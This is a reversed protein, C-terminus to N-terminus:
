PFEGGLRLIVDELAAGRVEMRRVAMGHAALIKLLADRAAPVDDAEVRVVPGEGHLTWARSAAHARLRRAEEASEMELELVPPAYLRRLEPTAESALLSGRHVVAVTDCIREVDSLVPTTLIVTAEERLGAILDLVGRRGAPDLAACPEDLFVVGPRGMLAQAIGLRQVMDASYGGIRRGAAEGLGSAALLRDARRGAEIRSQGFLGGVLVLLERGSMWGYFRPDEDLWGIRRRLTPSRVSVEGGAVRATGSTSGVLGTLIRLVTTKGAGNPGLLGFVSGSEVALDLGDVAKVSGGEYTKCLGSCEVVTM